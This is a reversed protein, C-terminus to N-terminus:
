IVSGTLGAGSLALCQDGIVIGRRTGRASCAVDPRVKELDSMVHLLEVTISKISM